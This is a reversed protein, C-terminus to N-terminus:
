GFNGYTDASELQGSKFLATEGPSDTFEIRAVDGTPESHVEIIRVEEGTSIIVAIDGVEPIYQESLLISKRILKRLKQETTKVTIEDTEDLDEEDLDRDKVVKNIISRQLADPLNSQKGKLASDDDYEGTSGKAERIIRRLQRKTIKMAGEELQIPDTIGAEAFEPMALIDKASKGMDTFIDWLQKLQKVPVQGSDRMPEDLPAAGGTFNGWQSERVIRKLQRKTIKM